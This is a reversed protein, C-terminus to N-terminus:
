NDCISLDDIGAEVLDGTATGDSAQVRLRVSSGAPIPHTALSWAANSTSDGNSAIATWSAGGNTSVELRFFDGSPDGGADRQGHFYWVSLTSANAVSWTPSSSICNGGDVDNVGASSNTATFFASGGGTHDGGVQTTVGGNTVLTPAARVYAGTTCTSAADNGWGTTASDFNENVTCNPPPPPPTGDDFVRVCRFRGENGSGTDNDNAFVLRMGTGTFFDGPHVQFTQFSGGGTYQQATVEAKGAGTWNQTGWFQHHRPADNLTQNEDFGIAHIEGQASSAFQFEIVTNATVTYSQASRLWTNNTLRLTAADQVQFSNSVNQDAYSQLGFSTFDISGAPCDPPPPPPPPPTSANLTFLLLNPSGTGIGSLRGTTANDTLLQAVQTPSLSGNEDLLLAGAGAVHPTAMSTGSITNTATDSTNWTSTISSGPAFIEVCTGFNSFSSRADTITSSGVTYVNAARAPSFNCANANDNGAAVALFVGSAVLNNVATDVASSAGGGLSMNAVAPNLHNSAVWDVGAIVGANTGSGSCNLVRVGHLRVNKAIGYSASGVTGSVHTGHGHCDIGNQGDGVADFDASARGGFQTHTPRIGTDIVYAHVGTGDFDYTYSSSLPLDRQDVRDLGWSPPNNQTASLTVVQDQEVYAVRPDRALSEASRGPMEVSFGHLVRQYVQRTTGGYARAMDSAAAPLDIGDNLVVIYQNPVANPSGAGRILSPGGGQAFAAGPITLLLVAIWLRRM